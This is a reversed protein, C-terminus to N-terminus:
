TVHRWSIKKYAQYVTVSSVGFRKALTEVSVGSPILRRLARVKKETLLHCHNSEGPAGKHRKKSVCDAINDQQTGLFLHRPNNCSRNDCKHLVCVGKPIPGKTLSYCLRHALGLSTIGYGWVNKAKKWPWCKDKSSKRVAKWFDCRVEEPTRKRSGRYHKNWRQPM